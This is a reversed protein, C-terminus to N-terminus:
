QKLPFLGEKDRESDGFSLKLKEQLKIEMKYMNQDQLKSPSFVSKRQRWQGKYLVSAQTKNIPM